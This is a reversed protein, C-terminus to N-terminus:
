NREYLKRLKQSIIKAEERTEDNLELHNHGLASLFSDAETITDKYNGNYLIGLLTDFELVAYTKSNNRKFVLLPIRDESSNEECQKLASHINLKEQNKAEISFPILKRAAPSFKIDEGNEGMIASKIDDDELETKFLKRLTDRIYDQLRRGKAKASSTKM